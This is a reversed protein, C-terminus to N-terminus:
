ALLVPSSLRTRWIGQDMTRYAEQYGRRDPLKSAPRQKGDLFRPRDSMSMLFHMWNQYGPTWAASAKFAAAQNEEFLFDLHM